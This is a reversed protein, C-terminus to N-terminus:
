GAKAPTMSLLLADGDFTQGIGCRVEEIVGARWAKFPTELKMSEIVLLLEGEEVRDGAKVACAIVAGPMPARLHDSKSLAVSSSFRAIPDVYALTHVAGDFHVHLRDGQQAVFVDHLTGNVRLQQRAGSIRGPVVELVDDESHLCFGDGLVSLWISHEADEIKFLERM